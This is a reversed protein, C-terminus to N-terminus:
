IFTVVNFINKINSELGSFCVLCVRLGMAICLREEVSASATSNTTKHLSFSGLTGRFLGKFHQLSVFYVFHVCVCM